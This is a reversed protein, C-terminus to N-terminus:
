RWVVSALRRFASPFVLLWQTRRSCNTQWLEFENKGVFAKQMAQPLYRYGPGDRDSISIPRCQRRLASKAEALPPNSFALYTQSLHAPTARLAISRYACARCRRLHTLIAATKKM